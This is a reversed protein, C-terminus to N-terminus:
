LVYNERQSLFPFDTNLPLSLSASLYVGFDVFLQVGNESLERAVVVYKIILIAM